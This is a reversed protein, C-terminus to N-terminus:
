NSLNVSDWCVELYRDGTGKKTKNALSSYSQVTFPKSYNGAIHSLTNLRFEFIM